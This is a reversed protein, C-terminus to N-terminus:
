KAIIKLNRIREKIESADGATMEQHGEPCEETCREDPLSYDLHMQLLHDHDHSEALLQDVLSDVQYSENGDDSWLHLLRKLSEECVLFFFKVTALGLLVFAIDQLFDKLHEHYSHNEVEDQGDNIRKRLAPM